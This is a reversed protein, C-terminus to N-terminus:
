EADIAADIAEVVAFFGELEAHSVRRRIQAEFGEVVASIAAATRVGEPTLEVLYSRRDEANIQRRAYGRRELRDIVGTLTSPHIGFAQQLEAVPRGRKRLHWVVHLELDTVDLRALREQMWRGSRQGLREIQRLVRRQSLVPKPM